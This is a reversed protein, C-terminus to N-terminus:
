SSACVGAGQMSTDRRFLLMISDTRYLRYSAAAQRFVHDDCLYHLVVRRPAATRVLMLQPRERDLDEGVARRLARETPSLISDAYARINRPYRVSTSDYPYVFWLHPFRGILRLDRIVALPFGDALWSSEMAVSTGPPVDRLMRFARESFEDVVRHPAMLRAYAVVAPLATVSLLAAGGLARRLADAMGPRSTESAMILLLLAVGCDTAPVFHYPFGKGQVAVSICFGALAALWVVLIMRHKTTRWGVLALLASGWITWVMPGSTLIELVPRQAFGHYLSALARSESLYAPAWILSAGTCLALVLLAWLSEDSRMRRGLWLAAFVLVPVMGATVKLALGIGALGGCVIMLTRSPQHGVARLSALALYPFVLVLQLHEREGFFGVVLGLSGLLFAAVLAHWAGASIPANRLVRWLM